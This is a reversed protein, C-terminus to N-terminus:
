NENLNKKTFPKFILLYPISLYSLILIVPFSSLKTLWDTILPIVKASGYDGNLLLTILKYDQILQIVEFPLTFFIIGTTIFLWGNEKFKLKTIFLFLIFTIILILYTILTLFILPSIVQIVAPINSSDLFNGLIPETEQFMQYTSLLRSIYAGFWISGSIVALYAFILSPINKKKM